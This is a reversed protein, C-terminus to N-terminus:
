VHAQFALSALFCCVIYFYLSECRLHASFLPHRGSPWLTHFWFQFSKAFIKFNVMEYIFILIVFPVKYFFETASM